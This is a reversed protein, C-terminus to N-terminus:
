RVISLVDIRVTSRNGDAMREAGAARPEDSRSEVLELADLPSACERRHADADPLPDCKEDLPDSGHLRNEIRERVAHRADREITGVLEIREIGRHMCVQAACDCLRTAASRADEHERPCATGEGGPLIEAIAGSNWVSRREIEAGRDIGSVVRQNAAQPLQGARHDGSDVTHCGSCPRADREGAIEHDGRFGRAENLREALDPQEGVAAPRPIQRAEDAGRASEPEREGTLSQAGLL